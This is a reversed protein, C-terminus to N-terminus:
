KKKNAEINKQLNTLINSNEVNIHGIILNSRIKNLVDIYHKELRDNINQLSPTEDEVRAFLSENADKQLNSFAKLIYDADKSPICLLNKRYICLFKTYSDSVSNLDMNNKSDSVFPIIAYIYNICSILVISVVDYFAELINQYGEIQKIHINLKYPELRTKRYIIISVWIACLAIIGSFITSIIDLVTPQNSQEQFCIFIQM